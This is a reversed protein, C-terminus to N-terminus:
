ESPQNDGQYVQIESQQTRIIMKKLSQNINVETVDVPVAIIGEERRLPLYFSVWNEDGFHNEEPIATETVSKIATYLTSSDNNEIMMPLIDYLQGEDFTPKFLEM